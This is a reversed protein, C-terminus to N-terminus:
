PQLGHNNGALVKKYVHPELNEKLRKMFESTFVPILEPPSGLPPEDLGNFILATTEGDTQSKLRKKINEIVGLGGLIKTFYIYGANNGTLSYYRALALIVPLRNEGNKILEHMYSGIEVPGSTEFTKGASDLYLAMDRVFAVADDSAKKDYGRRNYLDRLENEKM